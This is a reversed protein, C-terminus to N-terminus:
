SGNDVGNRTTLGDGCVGVHGFVVRAVKLVLATDKGRGVLGFLRDNPSCALVRSNELQYRERSLFVDRRALNGELKMRGDHCPDM